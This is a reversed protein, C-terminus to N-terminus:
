HWASQWMGTSYPTSFCHQLKLLLLVQQTPMHQQLFAESQETTTEVDSAEDTSVLSIKADTVRKWFDARLRDHEYKTAM